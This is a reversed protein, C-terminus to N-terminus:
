SLEALFEIFVSVYDEVDEDTHALSVMWQLPRAPTAFVGRNMLYLWVLRSLGAPHARDVETHDRAPEPTLAVFGRAGAVAGHGARGAHMLAERCGDLLISGLEELRAHAEATLVRELNERAVAMALANGNFTGVQSVRRTAVLDMTDRSAGVAAVPLGGGLAKGVTVLDPLVGCEGAFGAPGVAFGSKVEDFILLAGHRRTVECVADLYGPEPVLVGMQFIPEVIVCAAPRGEATLAGLRADLAAVDNFPVAVTLAAVDRPIGEGAPLSPLSIRDAGGDDDGVSVLVADHHGHYAGFMKVVVDRGTAARALRLADMTAESGTTAFRWSPLKWRDRLANAVAVADDGTAGVHTATTAARAIAEAMAPHAHGQLMAGFGNHFDLRRTGDVDWVASGLGRELYVPWPHQLQFSSVVGGALVDRAVAYRTGSTANATEFRREERATLQEVITAAVDSEGDTRFREVGTSSTMSGAM